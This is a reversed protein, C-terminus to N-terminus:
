CRSRGLSRPHAYSPRYPDLRILILDVMVTTPKDPLPKKMVPSPSM